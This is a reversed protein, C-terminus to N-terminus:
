KHTGTEKWEKWYVPPEWLEEPKYDYQEPEKYKWPNEQAMMVIKHLIWMVLIMAGSLLLIQIAIHWHKITELVQIM